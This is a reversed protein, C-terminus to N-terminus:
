EIRSSGTLDVSIQRTNGQSNRVQVSGNFGIALGRNDFQVEPGGGFSVFFMDIGAPMQGNKLTPGGVISATYSDAGLNFTVRATTNQKVANIRAFQLTSRIAEAGSRLRYNPLWGMFNPVAIASLIAIVALVTMVELITFGSNKRM